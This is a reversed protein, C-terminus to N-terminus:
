SYFYLLYQLSLLINMVFDAINEGELEAPLGGSFPLRSSTPVLNVTLGKLIEMWLEHRESMQKQQTTLMGMRAQHIEEAREQYAEETTTRKCNFKLHSSSAPFNKVENKV